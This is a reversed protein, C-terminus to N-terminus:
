TSPEKAQDYGKCNNHQFHELYGSVFVIGKLRPDAGEIQELGRKATERTQRARELDSHM